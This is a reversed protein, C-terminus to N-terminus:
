AVRRHAQSIGGRRGKRHSRLGAIVAESKLAINNGPVNGQRM